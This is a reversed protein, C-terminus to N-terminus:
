LGIPGRGPDTVDTPRAESPTRRRLSIRFSGAAIWAAGWFAMCVFLSTLEPRYGSFGAPPDLLRPLHLTLAWSAYMTGALTAAVRPLVGAAIAVGAAFHGFGSLYAWFTPWPYAFPSLAVLAAVSAPYIFHLIGFVPLSLGVVLRGAQVLPGSVPRSALGALMLAAGALVATEFTRIWWPSRLLAPQAFASPIQLLVIWLGFLLVLAVAAPRTKFGAMLALGAAILFAGTLVAFLRYGPTGSTFFEGVPQLQNVFDVYVLCLVGFATVASAFLVRGTALM